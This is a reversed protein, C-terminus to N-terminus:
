YGGDDTQIITRGEEHDDGGYTQSWIVQPQAILTNTTLLVAAFLIASVKM